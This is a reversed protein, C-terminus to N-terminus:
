KNIIILMNEPSMNLIKKIRNLIRTKIPSYKLKTNCHICVAPQKKTNFLRKIFYLINPPHLKYITANYCKFDTESFSHLHGDLPTNKKCKKCKIYKINEKYPVSIILKKSSIKLASEVTSKWDEIHEITELMSVQDFSNKTFPLTTADASIFKAMPCNNKALNIKQESIDIGTLNLTTNIYLYSIWNGEGCGIDLLSGTMNIHPLIQRFRSITREKHPKINKTNYYKKADM